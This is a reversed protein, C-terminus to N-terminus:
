ANTPFICSIIAIIQVAEECIKLSRCYLAIAGCYTFRVTHNYGCLLVTVRDFVMQAHMSVGVHAIISGRKGVALLSM